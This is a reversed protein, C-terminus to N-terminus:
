DDWRGFGPIRTKLDGNDLEANEGFHDELGGMIREWSVAPLLGPQYPFHCSGCEQGYLKSEGPDIGATTRNFSSRFLGMGRDDDSLAMGATVLLGVAAAVLGIRSM